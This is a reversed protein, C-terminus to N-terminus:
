NNKAGANIWKSIVYLQCDTLKRSPPMPFYGTSYSVAGYFRKSDVYSKISAYTELSVGASLNGAQHCGLCNTTILPMITKSFSVNQTDVVASCQVNKAGQTIWKAVLATQTTTLQRNPPMRSEGTAIMVTYLKSKSPNGAVIGSKTIFTYTTLDYGEMKTKADHCGSSACNSTFFPLIETNFCVSDGTSASSINGCDLSATTTTTGTTTTTTTTTTATTTATPVVDQKNNLCSILVLSAFGVFYSIKRM